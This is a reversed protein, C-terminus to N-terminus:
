RRGLMDRSVWLKLAIFMRHFSEIGTIESPCPFKKKRQRAAGIDREGM